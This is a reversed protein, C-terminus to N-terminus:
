CLEPTQYINGIIEFNANPIGYGNDLKIEFLCRDENWKVVGIQPESDSYIGYEIKVIDNEYIDVGNKDKKGTFQTLVCDENEDEGNSSVGSIAIIGDSNQWTMLFENTVFKNRILDWARFKYKRM